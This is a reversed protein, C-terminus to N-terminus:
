HIVVCSGDRFTGAQQVEPEIYAFGYRQLELDRMLPTHSFGMFFNAHLNHRYGPLTAEETATGGGIEANGELVAIKQGARSLYAAATLGNHGGGIVIGDYDPM